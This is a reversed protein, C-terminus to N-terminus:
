FTISDELVSHNPDFTMGARVLSVVTLVYTGHPGGISFSAVGQSDTYTIYTQQQGNPKTWRVTVEVQDVKRGNEDKVFVDGKITVRDGNLRGSLQIDTSRLCDVFCDGTVHIAVSRSGTAGRNDTVTLTANYTGASTYVHTPNPESSTGGDDFTWAYSVISGDPDRSGESSFNVTLPADGNTPDAAVVAIPARNPPQVRVSVVDTGSGGRGDYVTLSARHVGPTTFTHFAISGFYSGGDDFHWEFNGISGDPDYSGEATFTVDLPAPGTKPTAHAEAVPNVNPATVDVRETEVSQAGLNDTVTLTAVYEGPAEYTHSPNPQTSTAGDGFNWLLSAVTGDPDTSGASSFAVTLPVNGGDSNSSAVAVPWANGGLGFPAYGVRYADYPANLMISGLILSVGNAAAINPNAESTPSMSFVFGQPDLITGTASVRMGFLDSRADFQDLGLPAFRNRQDNFVVVFQSGDWAVRPRYQDEEFPTMNFFPLMTGDANVIRGVLDNGNAGFDDFQVVLANNANGAAGLEFFDDFSTSYSSYITFSSANSGNADVFAGVTSASPNDHTPHKEWVILWRNGVTTVQMHIAFSGNIVRGGPDLVTGNSGSVRAYIPNIIHEDSGVRHGIVLFNDGLASVDVNGFGPMVDFFTADVLSGDQRIRQAVIGIAYPWTVLYVSGNWAIAPYGLAEIADGQVITVPAPTTPNGAADFPQAMIRDLGSVDSRFVAMYGNNGAAIDARIQRPAGTSLPFNPGAVNAASVHASQVDLEFFQSVNGWVLQVGGDPTSELLGPQPGAVPVGNPDLVTGSASVRGLRVSTPTTGWSVRFRAGDWSLSPTTVPESTGSINVGNGDLKAGATSVRTGAVQLHFTPTQKNWVAYFQTNSAVLGGLQANQLLLKPAPDLPLLDPGFRISMTDGFDNWTLLYVGSTYALRIDSRLFYTAPVIVSGPQQVVGAATIRMAQLATSAPSTQFVLVWDTGDSTIAWDSGAPTVNHILIPEPDLVQGSPSIRVAELSPEYYFGTGGLRVSQYVVLWNTGNWAIKPREQRGKGQSVVIPVADLPNGAADLRMAYVDGSTEYEVFLPDVDPPYARFDSWATLLQNGGRAVAPVEQKGAAAAIADDDPLFSLAQATASLAMTVSLVVICVLRYPTIM